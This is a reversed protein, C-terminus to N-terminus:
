IKVIEKFIKGNKLSEYITQKSVGMHRALAPVSAFGDVLYKSPRRNIKKLLLNNIPAGSRLRRYLTQTLINNDASLKKITEGNIRISNSRNNNQETSTAWRCNEKCYNGNNNKRDLTRGKPRDGMDELFNVFSNKWRNCVTIGRGGYNEFKNYNKNYCRQKMMIWSLYTKRRKGDM